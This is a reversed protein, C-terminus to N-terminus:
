PLDDLVECIIRISNKNIKIVIPKDIDIIDSDHAYPSHTDRNKVTICLRLSKPFQERLEGITSLRYISIDEYGNYNYNIM